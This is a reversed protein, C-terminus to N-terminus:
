EYDVFVPALVKPIVLRIGNQLCDITVQFLETGGDHVDVAEPRKLRHGAVASREPAKEVTERAKKARARRGRQPVRRIRRPLRQVGCLKRDCVADDGQVDLM